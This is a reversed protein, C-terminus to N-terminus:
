GAPAPSGNKEQKPGSLPAKNLHKSTLLRLKLLEIRFTHQQPGYVVTEPIGQEISILQCRESGVVCVGDGFLGTVKDSVLMLVKKQDKSVDMFTLAPEKRSPLMTLEPLNHRVSPEAKSTSAGSSVPVIRVDIAFSFYRLHEEDVPEGNGKESPPATTHTTETSTSTSETTTSEVTASSSEVSSSPSESTSASTSSGEGEANAYQQEFPDKGSGNGLRHRYDRLGPAAKAVVLKSSPVAANSIDAAAGETAASDSGSSGGLAVPLAVIAVLLIAVLPLLHRERLDYYLDLLFDPVKIESLKLEPGKKLFNM